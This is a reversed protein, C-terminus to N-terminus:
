LVLAGARWAVLLADAADVQGDAALRELLLEPTPNSRLTRRLGAFAAAVGRENKAILGLLFADPRQVEIGLTALKKVGFDKINKTVLSVVPAHRYYHKAHLVHACAAVHVDKASRMAWTVAKFQAQVDTISLEADPLAAKMLAEHKAAAAQNVKRGTQVLARSMEELILPSWHLRILGQYDLHILLGRTTAGFLTDADAVVPIVV